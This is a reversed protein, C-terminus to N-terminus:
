EIRIPKLRSKLEEAKSEHHNDKKHEDKKHEDKKQSPHAGPKSWNHHPLINTMHHPKAPGTKVMGGVKNKVMEHLDKIISFMDGNSHHPTHHMLPSMHIEHHKENDGDNGWSEMSDKLKDQHRQLEKEMQKLEQEETKVHEIVWEDHKLEKGM